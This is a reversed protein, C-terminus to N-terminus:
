APILIKGTGDELQFDLHRLSGSSRIDRLRDVQREVADPAINQLASLEEVFRAMQDAGQSERRIDGQARLVALALAVSFCALFIWASRRMLLSTM